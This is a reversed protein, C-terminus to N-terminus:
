ENLFTDIELKNSMLLTEAVEINDLAQDTAFSKVRSLLELRSEFPEDSPSLSAIDFIVLKLDSNDM